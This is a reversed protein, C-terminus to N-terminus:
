NLLKYGTSVPRRNQNLMVFGFDNSMDLGVDGDMTVKMVKHM